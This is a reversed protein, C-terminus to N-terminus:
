SARLRGAVATGWIMMVGRLSRASRVGGVRLRCQGVRRRHRLGALLINIGQHGELWRLPRTVVLGAAAAVLVLLPEPYAGVDRTLRSPL